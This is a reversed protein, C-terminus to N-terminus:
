TSSRVNFGEPISVTEGDVREVASVEALQPGNHCWTVFLEVAERRGQVVVEVTGNKRNRVWGDLCLAEAEAAASARYFVGQVRGCIILHARIM